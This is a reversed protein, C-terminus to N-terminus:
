VEEDDVMDVVVAPLQQLVDLWLVAGELGDVGDQYLALVPLM